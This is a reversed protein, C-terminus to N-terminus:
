RAGPPRFVVQQRTAQDIEEPTLLVVTETAVAGTATAALRVAAATANDPLEAIIYTDAGGFAFSFSEMRGGLRAILQETQAVRGSGGEDLLGRIGETTYTSRFLFKAM